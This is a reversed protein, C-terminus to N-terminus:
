RVDRYREALRAPDAGFFYALRLRWMLLVTRMVGHRAWRRGSTVVPGRLRVPAAIRRANRCFAIDEMLAQVPFGGTREFLARTVFLAQDGTAIGTLRSRLNMMRAIVALSGSGADIRVDFWGWAHARMAIATEISRDFEGPVLSDAHLFLLIEGRAAAAGANLQVARGCASRLVRDALPEAVRVTQDNSAGDVVLVEAGRARAPALAALTARIKLAENLAPVIVSLRRSVGPPRTGPANRTRRRPAGDRQARLNRVDPVSGPMFGSSWTCCASQRM